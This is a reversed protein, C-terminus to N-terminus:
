QQRREERKEIEARQAAFYKGEIKFTGAAMNEAIKQRIWLGYAGQGQLGIIGDINGVLQEVKMEIMQDRMANLNEEFVKRDAPTKKVVKVIVLDKGVTYSRPLVEGDRAGRIDRVMADNEGLGNIMDSSINVDNLVVAKVRDAAAVIPLETPLAVLERPSADEQAEGETAVEGAVSEVSEAVPVEAMLQQELVDAYMASTILTDLSQKDAQALINNTIEQMKNEVRRADLIQQAIQYRVSELPEVVTETRELIKAIVYRDGLEATAVEGVKKDSLAASIAEDMDDIPLLGTKGALEKAPSEDYDAFFQEFDGAKGAEAVAINFRESAQYAKNTKAGPNTLNALSKQIVVQQLRAKAPTTFELIHDDYYKQVEDKGSNMFAQIEANKLPKLTALVSSPTIRVTELSAREYTQSYAQWLLADSVTVSSAMLLLYRHALLEERKYNEYDRASIQMRQLASAYSSPSFRNKQLFGLRIVDPNGSEWDRIYSNLEEDSVRLGAKRAEDALMYIVGISETMSQAIVPYQKTGLINDDYHTYLMSRMLEYGVTRGGVHALTKGGKTSCSSDKSPLGFMFVFVVIIIAFLIVILASNKQDRFNQLM